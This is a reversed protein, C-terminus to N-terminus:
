VRARTRKKAWDYFSDGPKSATNPSESSHMGVGSRDNRLEVEIPATVVGQRGIGEGKKWGMKELLKSGVNNSNLDGEQDSPKSARQQKQQKQEWRKWKLEEEEQEARMAQERQRQLQKQKAIEL